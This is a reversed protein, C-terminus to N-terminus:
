VPTHRLQFIPERSSAIKPPMPHMRGKNIRDHALNKHVILQQRATLREVGFQSSASHRRPAGHLQLVEPGMAGVAGVTQIMGVGLKTDHRAIQGRSLGQLDNTRGRYSSRGNSHQSRILPAFPLIKAVPDDCFVATRCDVVPTVQQQEIIM